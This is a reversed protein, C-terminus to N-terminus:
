PLKGAGVTAPISTGLSVPDPNVTYLYPPQWNGLPLGDCGALYGDVLQPTLASVDDSQFWLAQGRFGTGGGHHQLLKGCIENSANIKVGLVHFFNGQAVIDGQTGIAMGSGWKQNPVSAVSGEYFNNYLHVRGYRVRPMRSQNYYWHNGTMTVKLRGLDSWARGSDGNGILNTKDSTEFRSNAVTIYNSARVIDLSGDRRTATYTGNYQGPGITVHDVWVQQAWSVVIGDFEADASGPNVDWPNEILLNRVIVNRTWGPYKEPDGGHNVWAEYNSQPEPTAPSDAHPPSFERGIAIQTGAFRAPSGDSGNIGVLTTNSPVVITGGQHQDDFSTYEEYFGKTFRFDIVGVVRVIKPENGAEVLATILQEKTYVTYIRNPAAASGGTVIVPGYESWAHWGNAPATQREFSLVGGTPDVPIHRYYDIHVPQPPVAVFSLNTTPASYTRAGM